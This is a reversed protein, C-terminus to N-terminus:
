GDFGDLSTRRLLDREQECLRRHRIRLDWAQVAEPRDGAGPAGNAAPGEITVQSTVDGIHVSM